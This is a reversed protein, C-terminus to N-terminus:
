KILKLMEDTAKRLAVATGPESGAHGADPILRLSAHPMAEKLQAAAAPPCVLDYQGQVIITPIRSLTPAAAGKLLQGPKLWCGHDFYHNEILAM